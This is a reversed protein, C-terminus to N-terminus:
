SLRGWLRPSGAPRFAIILSFLLFVSSGKTSLGNASLALTFFLVTALIVGPHTGNLLIRLLWLFLGALLATGLAGFLTVFIVVSSEVFELDLYVKAIDGMRAPDMGLLIQNWSMHEFIRYIDVRARANADVFGVGFRDLAGAAYLAGILLPIAAVSAAVVILRRELRRHSALGIGVSGIAIILTVCLGAILATRAGSAGLGLVLIACALSKVWRPWSTVACFPIAVATWLGLDLPHGALGTPRFSYETESFPQLRTKLVFEVLAVVASLILWALLLSGVKHRWPQPFLFLLAACCAGVYTDILYGASGGRGALATAVLIAAVGAIFATMARIVRVEWPSLAVRYCLLVAVAVGIFGYFAPHLKEVISGSDATYNVLLDLLLPNLAVRLLALGAFILFLASLLPSARDAARPHVQPQAAPGFTRATAKLM